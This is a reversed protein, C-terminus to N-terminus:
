HGPSAPCTVKDAKAETLEDAFIIFLIQRTLNWLSIMLYLTYFM